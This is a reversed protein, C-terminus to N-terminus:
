LEQKDLGLGLRLGAGQLQLWRQPEWSLLLLLLNVQEVCCAYSAM